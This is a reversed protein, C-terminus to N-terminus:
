LQCPLCNVIHQGNIRKKMMKVKTVRQKNLMGLKQKKRQEM